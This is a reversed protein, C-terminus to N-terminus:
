KEVYFKDLNYPYHRTINESRLNFNFFLLRSSIVPLRYLALIFSYTM